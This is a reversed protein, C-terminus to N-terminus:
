NDLRFSRYNIYFAGTHLKFSTGGHQGMFLFGATSPKFNKSQVLIPVLFNPLRSDFTRVFPSCGLGLALQAFARAISKVFLNTLRERIDTAEM